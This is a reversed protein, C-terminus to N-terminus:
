TFKSWSPVVVVIQTWAKIHEKCWEVIVDKRWSNKSMHLVGLNIAAIKPWQIGQWDNEFNKLEGKKIITTGM